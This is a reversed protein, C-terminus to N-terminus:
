IFRKLLISIRGKKTNGIIECVEVRGRGRVSVIDGVKVTQASNKANQWNVKVKEAGIVEAMKTRSIGYGAAAVVDLRLSPVTTKIEKIREEHPPIDSLAAPLGTITASGISILSKLIYEALSKDIIVYCHGSRMIIDGLVDRKIGLSMLSGLVDRHTIHHHLADWSFLVTAINFDIKGAYDKAVFAVKTREAGHYGGDSTMSLQEYHATITEVISLGYPDLFDSVRYRRYKLAYEALDLLRAALDGDGQSKYYRIIKDRDGM